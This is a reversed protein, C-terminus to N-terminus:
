AEREIRRAVNNALNSVRQWDAFRTSNSSVLADLTEQVADLGHERIMEALMPEITAADTDIGAANM